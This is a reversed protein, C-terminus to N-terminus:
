ALTNFYNTKSILNQAIRKVYEELCLGVIVSYVALDQTKERDTQRQHM